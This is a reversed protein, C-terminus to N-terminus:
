KVMITGMKDYNTRYTKIVQEPTLPITRKNWKLLVKDSDKILVEAIYWNELITNNFGSELIRRIVSSYHEEWFASDGSFNNM